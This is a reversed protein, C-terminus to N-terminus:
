PDGSIVETSVEASVQAVLADFLCRGLAIRKGVPHGIAGREVWFVEEDVEITSINSELIPMGGCDSAFVLETTLAVISTKPFPRARWQSSMLSEFRHIEIRSVGSVEEVSLMIDAESPAPRRNRANGAALAEDIPILSVIGVDPARGSQNAIKGLGLLAAVRNRFAM